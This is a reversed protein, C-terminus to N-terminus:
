RPRSFVDRFVNRFSQRLTRFRLAEALMTRLEPDRRTVAREYMQRVLPIVRREYHALNRWQFGAIALSIAITWVAPVDGLLPRVQDALWPPASAALAPPLHPGLFILLIWFGPIATAIACKIRDWAHRQKMSDLLLQLMAIEAQREASPGTPGMRGDMRGTVMGEQTRSRGLIGM